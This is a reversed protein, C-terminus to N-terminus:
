VAQSATQNCVRAFFRAPLRKRDQLIVAHLHAPCADDSPVMVRSIAGNNRWGFAIGGLVKEGLAETQPHNEELLLEAM